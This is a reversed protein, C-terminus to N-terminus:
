YVDGVHNIDSSSGLDLQVKKFDGNEDNGSELVLRGEEEINPTFNPLFALSVIGSPLKVDTILSEDLQAKAFGKPSRFDVGHLVTDRFIANTINSGELPADSLDCADFTTGILNKNRLDILKNSRGVQEFTLGSLDQPLATRDDMSVLHIKEFAKNNGESVVDGLNAGNLVVLHTIDEGELKGVFSINILISGGFDADRLSTRGKFKVNELHGDFDVHELNVNNFTADKLVSPMSEVKSLNTGTGFYVGSFRANEFSTEDMHAKTFLLTRITGSDEEVRVADSFAGDFNARYLNAEKFYALTLDAGKFSAESFDAETNGNIERLIANDFNAFHFKGARLSAKTLDAGSFDADSCDAGRIVAKQLSTGAFNTDKLNAGKFIIGQLNEADTWISGGLKKGSFDVNSLDGTFTKDATDVWIAGNMFMSFVKNPEFQSFSAGFLKTGDLDIKNPDYRRLNLEGGKLDAERFSTKSGNNSGVRPHDFKAGQLNADDFVTDILSVNSYRSGPATIDNFTAGDLFCNAFKSNKLNAKDFKAGVFSSNSFRANNLKSGTFDVGDLISLEFNCKRLDMGKLKAGTLNQGSLLDPNEKLLRALNSKRLDKGQYKTNSKVQELQANVKDLTTFKLKDSPRKRNKSRPVKDGTKLSDPDSSINPVPIIDSDNNFRKSAAPLTLHRQTEASQAESVVQDGSRVKGEKTTTQKIEEENFGPVIRKTTTNKTKEVKPNQDKGTGRRGSRTTKTSGINLRRSEQNPNPKPLGAM